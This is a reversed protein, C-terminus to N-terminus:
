GGPKLVRAIEAFVKEPEPIHEIVQICLVSDISEKGCPINLANAYFDVEKRKEPISSLIDFGVYRKIHGAFLKLYSKEGCGVDLLIGSTYSSVLALDNWLYRAIIWDPRKISVRIPLKM